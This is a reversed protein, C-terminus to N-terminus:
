KKRRTTPKKETVAPKEEAAPKDAADTAGDALPAPLVENLANMYAAHATQAIATKRSLEGLEYEAAQINVVLQRAQESLQGLDYLKGGVNLTQTNEQVGSTSQAAQAVTENKAM